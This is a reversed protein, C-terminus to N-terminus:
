QPRVYVGLNFLTQAVSGNIYSVSLVRAHCVFSGSHMFGTGVAVFAFPPGPIVVRKIVYIESTPTGVVAPDLTTGRLVLQGPAAIGAAGEAHVCWHVVYRVDAGRVNPRYTYANTLTADGPGLTSTRVPMMDITDVFASVVTGGAILETRTELLPYGSARLDIKRFPTAM